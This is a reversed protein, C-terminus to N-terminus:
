RGEQSGSKRSRPLPLPTVVAAVDQPAGVVREYYDVALFPALAYTLLPEYARQRDILGATLIGVAGSRRKTDVLKAVVDMAHGLESGAKVLASVEPPLPIAMSGGVGQRGDRARVVAWACTRLGGDPEQVVGGELGVGLDADAHTDQELAQRAREAAGRRTEDDGWPQDPVGSAVGVGYVTANPAVRAMVARVAALKVPNTSGVVVQRVWPLLSQPM